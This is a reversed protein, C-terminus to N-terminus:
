QRWRNRTDTISSKCEYSVGKLSTGKAGAPSCFAGPTVNQVVVDPTPSPLNGSPSGNPSATSSSEPTASYEEESSTQPTPTPTAKTGVGKNWVLKKGSKVCTYKINAVSKTSNIKTCKTGAITASNAPLTSVLVFASVVTAVISLRTRVM